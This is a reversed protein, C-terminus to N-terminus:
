LKKKHMKIIIDVERIGKNLKKSIEEQTLGLDLLEIIKKNDKNLNITKPKVDNTTKKGFEIKQIEDSVGIKDKVIDNNVQISELKLDVLKEFSSVINDTDQYYKKTNTEILSLEDVKNKNISIDKKIIYIAYIILLVGITYLINNLM